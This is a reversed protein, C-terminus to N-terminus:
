LWPHKSVSMALGMNCECLSEVFRRIYKVKSCQCPWVASSNHLNDHGVGYCLRVPIWCSSLHIKSKFFSMVLKIYECLSGVFPHIYKVNSSQCPWVGAVIARPNLLNVFTNSTQLCVASAISRFLTLLKRSIRFQQRSLRCRWCPQLFCLM